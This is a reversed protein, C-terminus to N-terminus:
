NKLFWAEDLRKRLQGARDADKSKKAMHEFLEYKSKANRVAPHNEDTVPQRDGAGPILKLSDLAM